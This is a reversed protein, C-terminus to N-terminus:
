LATDVRMPIYRPCKCGPFNCPTGLAPNDDRQQRAHIAKAHGCECSKM